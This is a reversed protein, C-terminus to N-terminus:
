RIYYTHNIGLLFNMQSFDINLWQFWGLACRKEHSSKFFSSGTTANMSMRLPSNENGKEYLPIESSISTKLNLMHLLDLAYWLTAILRSVHAVIVSQSYWDDLIRCLLAENKVFDEMALWSMTALLVQGTGKLLRHLSIWISISYQHSSMPHWYSTVM